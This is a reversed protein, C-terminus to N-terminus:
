RKSEPIIEEIEKTYKSMIKKLFQTKRMKGFIQFTKVKCTTELLSFYVSIDQIPTYKNDNDDIVLKIKKKKRKIKSFFNRNRRGKIEDKQNDLVENTLKLLSENLNKRTFKKNKENNKKRSYSRGRNKSKDKSQHIRFIKNRKLTQNRYLPLYFGESKRVNKESNDISKKLKKVAEISRTLIRTKWKLNRKSKVRGNQPTKFEASIESKEMSHDFIASGINEKLKEELDFKKKKGFNMSPLLIKNRSVDGKKIRIERRNYENKDSIKRKSDFRYRGQIKRNKLSIGSKKLESNEKDRSPSHKGDSAGSNSSKFMSDTSVGRGFQGSNLSSGEGFSNSGKRRYVKRKIENPDLSVKMEFFSKSLKKSFNNETTSSERSKQRRMIPSLSQKKITFKHLNSPSNQKLNLQKLREKKSVPVPTLRLGGGRRSNNRSKLAKKKQTQFILSNLLIQPYDSDKIAKNFESKSIKRNLYSKM